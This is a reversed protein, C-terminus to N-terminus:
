LTGAVYARGLGLQGPARLVHGLAVPSRLRFTPGGGNTAALATGDWLELRFPRDPLAESLATRLPASSMGGAQDGRARAARACRGVRTGDARAGLDGGGVRRDGVAAPRAGGRDPVRPPQQAM